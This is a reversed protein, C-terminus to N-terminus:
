SAGAADRRGEMEGLKTVIFKMLEGTCMRERGVRFIPRETLWKLSVDDWNPSQTDSELVVYGDARDLMARASDKFDDVAFDLVPLYIDPKLFGLVANSELIVHEARAMEERLRPMAEALRGQKTRVWLVRRAGADVFRSTDTGTGEQEEVDVAVLHEDEACGCAEGNRSCIGHGFQTIKAALWNREPFARLIEEVLQTKGINRTHGGVVIVKTTPAESKTSM